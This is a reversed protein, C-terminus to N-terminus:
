TRLLHAYQRDRVLIKVICLLNTLLKSTCAHINRYVATGLLDTVLNALASKGLHRIHQNYAFLLCLGPQYGDSATEGTIFPNDTDYRKVNKPDSRHFFQAIGVIAIVLVVCLLVLLCRGIVKWAKVTM